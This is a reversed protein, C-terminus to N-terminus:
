PNVAPNNTSYYPEIIAISKAPDIKNDKMTFSGAMFVQPSSNPMDILAGL